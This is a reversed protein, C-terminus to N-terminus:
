LFVAMAILLLVMFVITGITAKNVGDWFRMKEAFFAEQTEPGRYVTSQETM